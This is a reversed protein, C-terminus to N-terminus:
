YNRSLWPAVRQRFNNWYDCRKRFSRLSRRNMFNSGSVAVVGPYRLDQTITAGSIGAVGCPAYYSTWVSAQAASTAKVPAGINNTHLASVAASSPNIAAHTQPDYGYTTTQSQGGVSTLM